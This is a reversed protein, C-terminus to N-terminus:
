AVDNKEYVLFSIRWRYVGPLSIEKRTAGATIVKDNYLYWTGNHLAVTIYHGSTFDGGHYGVARLSYYAKSAIDTDLFIEDDVILPRDDLVPVKAGSRSVEARVVQMWIVPPLPDRRVFHYQKKHCNSCIIQQLFFNNLIRQVSSGHNLDLYWLSSPEKLSMDGTIFNCGSCKQESRHLIFTRIWQDHRDRLRADLNLSLFTHELFECLDEQTDTYYRILFLYPAMCDKMKDACANSRTAILIDLIPVQFIEKLNQKREEIALPQNREWLQKQYEIDSWEGPLDAQWNRLLEDWRRVSFAAQLSANIYCSQRINVFGNFPSSPLNQFAM